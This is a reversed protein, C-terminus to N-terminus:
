VLIMLNTNFCILRNRQAIYLSVKGKFVAQVVEPDFGM